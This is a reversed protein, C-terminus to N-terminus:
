PWVGVRRSRVAPLQEAKHAGDRLGDTDTLSDCAPITEFRSSM